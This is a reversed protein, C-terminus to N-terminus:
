QNFWMKIEIKTPFKGTNLKSYQLIGNVTVEFAGSRPNEKNGM